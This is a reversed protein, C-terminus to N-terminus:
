VFRFVGRPGVQGDELRGMDMTPAPAEIVDGWALVEDPGKLTRIQDLLRQIQGHLYEFLTDATAVALSRAAGSPRACPMRQPARM